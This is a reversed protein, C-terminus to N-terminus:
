TVVITTWVGVNQRACEAGRGCGAGCGAPLGADGGAARGGERAGDMGGYRAVGKSLAVYEGREGGGGTRGDEGGGEIKGDSRGDRFMTPFWAQGARGRRGEEEGGCAKV